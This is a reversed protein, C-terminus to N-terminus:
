MRVQKELLCAVIGEAFEIVPLLATRVEANRHSDISGMYASIPDVIILRVNELVKAAIKM